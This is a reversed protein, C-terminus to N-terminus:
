QLPPMGYVRQSILSEPLTNRSVYADRNFGLVQDDVYLLYHTESKKHDVSIHIEFNSGSFRDTLQLSYCMGLVTTFDCYENEKLLEWPNPWTKRDWPDTAISVLPALKYFEIIDQLPNESTELSDRFDRWLSLQEEYNKNFM